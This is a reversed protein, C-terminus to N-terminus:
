VPKGSFWSGCDRCQFRYYKRKIKVGIGRRQTNESQCTPCGVRARYEKYVNLDPHNPAWARMKNYVQELLEVDHANYRRMVRWSKEDGSMCGFWLHAGTHPLKSGIRLYRALDDLKNSNFKFHRRAIKLTDITKYPSPPKLGHVLFRANAKKTDFRDGNHAVLIDAEHFVEWLAKSLAKDCERNRQYGSFDPLAVTQVSKKHSWKIAFSLMYWDRDTRIVNTDYNEWVYARTPATEIDFFAIKPTL